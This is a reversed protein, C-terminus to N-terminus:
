ADPVPTETRASTLDSYSRSVHLEALQAVENRDRVFEVKSPGGGFNM